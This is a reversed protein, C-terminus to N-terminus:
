EVVHKGIAEVVYVSSWEGQGGRALWFRRRLLFVLSYQFLKLPDPKIATRHNPEEEM